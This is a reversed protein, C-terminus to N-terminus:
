PGASAGSRVPTISCRGIRGCFSISISSTPNPSRKRIRGCVLKNDAHLAADTVARLQRADADRVFKSESGTYKFASAPM